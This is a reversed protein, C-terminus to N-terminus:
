FITFTARYLPHQILSSFKFPNWFSLLLIPSSLQGFSLFHNGNLNAGELNAERLNAGEFDGDNFNAEKIENM